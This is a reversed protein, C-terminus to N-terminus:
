KTKFILTVNVNYNYSGSINEYMLSSDLAMGINKNFFQVFKGNLTLFAQSNTDFVYYQTLIFSQTESFLVQARTRFSGGLVTSRSDVYKNYSLVPALGFDLIFFSSKAAYVKEGIGVDNKLSLAEVPTLNFNDFAFFTFRDTQERDYGLHLSTNSRYLTGGNIIFNNLTKFAIEDKGEFWRIENTTYINSIQNTDSTYGTGVQAKYSSDAILAGTLLLFLIAKKM